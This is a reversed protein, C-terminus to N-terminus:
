FKTVQKIIQGENSNFQIIYNGPTLTSLENVQVYNTGKNMKISKAFVQKGTVSFVRMVTTENSKWDININIYSTFPNPSVTFDASKKLRVSVVKSFSSFGDIDVQRLRYYIINANVGTIDDNFTYYMDLSTFGHGAVTGTKTFTRGDFSREIEYRDCNLEQLTAWDVKIMNNRLLVATLSKLTVPLPASLPELIATGDDTFKENADSFGEIRAVNIIAPIYGYADAPNVTVKFEIEFEEGPALIGGHTATAGSGLRFIIVKNNIFEAQDDGGNDTLFTNPQFGACSIIKLTGPLYTVGAPLTDTVICFNANGIGINKGTLKYTLLENEEAVNNFNADKVFKDLTVTPDKTKIVFTFLGPFYQDAETGFELQVTTDGPHIGYGSGVFFQDIDIGMQNTYNPSKTTVHTGTDTITGNWPNDIANLGNQFNTGNIKLYDLKLNADGEWVMAGMKADRDNLAGSPVNLGTLTVSSILSSGGSYVQQFGDYVRVSNYAINPNEYVVVICWGAYNGGSSVSGISAAINGVSYTGTGNAQVFATVDAYAQYQSVPNTGTGTNKDVQAAAFETYAGSNGFRIKVKKNSDLSIDFDNKRVRAGWYLRALKITNTGEPLSLDSTSSNRTGAGNGTNGDIDVYRINSNDNGFTSNGNARNNNMKATDANGNTNVIHTLTNGFITAGGKINDSYVKQYSRFQANAGLAGTMMLLFLFFATKRKLKNKTYVIKM